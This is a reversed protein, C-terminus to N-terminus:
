PTYYGAELPLSGQKPNGDALFSVPEYVGGERLYAQLMVQDLQHKARSLFAIQLARAGPSLEPNIMFSSSLRKVLRRGRSM